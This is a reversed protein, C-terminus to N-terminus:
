SSRELDQPTNVNVAFRGSPDASRWEDEQVVRVEVRQLAVHVARVGEILAERLLPAADKSFVAHLPEVGRQTEPVIAAEGSWLTALLRFVAASAFPMDVALVAVLPHRARELGPVLGGLPGANAVVDAVQPRGFQRLRKGDGSALLVEDCCEDLVALAQEALPRGGFPILAKDLRM